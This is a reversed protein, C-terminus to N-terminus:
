FEYKAVIVDGAVPPTTLAIQTVSKTIAGGTYETGDNWNFAAIKAVSISPRLTNFLFTNEYGDALWAVINPRGEASGEDGNAETAGDTIESFAQGWIYTPSASVSMRYIKEYPTENFSGLKGVIKVKPLMYYHWRTLKADDHGMQMTIIACDPETGQKDTGFPVMTSEGVVRIMTNSLAADIDQHTYGVRLEGTTPDRTPLILTDKVRMDGLNTIVLPDGETLTFARSGEFVFGEYPEDSTAAPSGDTNLPFVQTRYVDVGWFIHSTEAM